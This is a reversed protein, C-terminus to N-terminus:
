MRVHHGVCNRAYSNRATSLLMRWYNFIVVHYLDLCVCFLIVDCLQVKTRAYEQTHAYRGCYGDGEGCACSMPKQMFSSQKFSIIYYNRKSSELLISVGVRIGGGIFSHHSYFELLMCVMAYSTFPFEERTNQYSLFKRLIIDRYSHFYM